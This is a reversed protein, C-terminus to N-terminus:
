PLPPGGLADLQRKKDAWAAPTLDLGGVSPNDELGTLAQIWLRLKFVDGEVPRPMPWLRVSCDSDGTAILRDDPSIASVIIGSTSALDPGISRCTVTDWLSAHGNNAGVLLISGDQNFAVTYVPAGMHIPTGHLAGTSANWLKATGDESATAVLNSRANWAVQHIAGDHRLVRDGYDGDLLDRIYARNTEATVFRGREPCFVAFDIKPREVLGARNEKHIRYLPKSDGLAWSAIEGGDTGVLLIADDPSFVLSTIAGSHRLCAIETRGGHLDWIHLCGEGDGALLRTGDQSWALINAQEPLQLTGIPNGTEVNFVDITSKTTSCAVSKGDRSLLPPTRCFHQLVKGVPRHSPISWFRIEGPRAAGDPRSTAMLLDSNASFCVSRMGGGALRDLSSQPATPIELMRLTLDYSALFLHRGDPRFFVNAIRQRYDQPMSLARGTQVDWLQLQNRHILTALVNGDPSFAIQSAKDALLIARPVTKPNSQIGAFKIQNGESYAALRDEHVAVVCQGAGMSTERSLVAIKASSSLNHRLILESGELTLTLDNGLLWLAAVAKADPSGAAIQKSSKLDFTQLGSNTGIGLKQSDPSFSLCTIEAPITLSTKLDPKGDVIRYIRLADTAVALFRGDRSFAIKRLDVGKMLLVPPDVIGGDRWLYLDRNADVIALQTGALLARGFTTQDRSPVASFRELPLIQGYWNALGLRAERLMDKERAPAIELARVLSFVASPVRHSDRGERSGTEIARAASQLVLDAIHKKQSLVAFVLVGILSLLTVAAFASVRAMAPNRRAWLLGRELWGVSRSSIPEGALFYHLDLALDAASQFRRAPELAMARAIITDLDRPIERNIERPPQVTGKIVTELINEPRGRFPLRGTTAKYLIVGLSYIDSRQDVEGTKGQAQEPSMYAPTGLVQGARTLGSGAEHMLALGFDILIPKLVSPDASNELMVNGPKVDRHVIKRLHAYDLAEALTVVLRAAQRINPPNEELWDELTTGEIYNTVLVPMDNIYEVAFIRLINPHDMQASAQAERGLRILLHTSSQWYKHPIKLAVIRNLDIQQAKWVEGFTGAGAFKKLIFPGFVHGAQLGLSSQRASSTKGCATCTASEHGTADLLSAGCFECTQHSTNDLPRTSDHESVNEPLSLKTSRSDDFERSATNM